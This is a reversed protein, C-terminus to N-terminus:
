GEIKLSLQSEPTTERCVAAGPIAVRHCAKGLCAVSGRTRTRTRTSDYTHLTSHPLRLASARRPVEAVCPM